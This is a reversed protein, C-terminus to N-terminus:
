RIANVRSGGHVQFLEDCVSHLESLQPQVSKMPFRQDQNAVGPSTDDPELRDLPSGVEIPGEDTGPLDGVIRFPQVCPVVEENALGTAAAVASCKAIQLPDSWWGISSAVALRLPFNM